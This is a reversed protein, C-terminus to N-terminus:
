ARFGVGGSRAKFARRLRAASGFFTLVGAVPLAMTPVPTFWLPVAVALACIGALLSTHSRYGAFHERVALEGSALTVLVLGAVIMVPRQADNVARLLFGLALLVMGVLICLENLPFPAWPPQPAERRDAKWTATRPAPHVVAPAEHRSPGDPTAVRKRSRKGMRM